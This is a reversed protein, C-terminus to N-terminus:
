TQHKRKQLQLNQIVLVLVGRHVDENQGDVFTLFLNLHEPNTVKSHTVLSSYVQLYFPLNVRSKMIWRLSSYLKQMIEESESNIGLINTIIIAAQDNMIELRKIFQDPYEM